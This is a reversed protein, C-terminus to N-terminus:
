VKGPARPLAARIPQRPAMYAHSNVSVPSSVVGSCTMPGSPLIM